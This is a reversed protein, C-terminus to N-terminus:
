RRDMAEGALDLLHNVADELCSAERGRATKIGSERMGALIWAATERRKAPMIANLSRSVYSHKRPEAVPLRIEVTKPIEVEGGDGEIPIEIKRKGM